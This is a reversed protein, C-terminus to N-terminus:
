HIYTQTHTHTYTHMYTHMYTHRNTQIHTHICTHKYTHKYTHINTHKYTQIYLHIHRSILREFRFQGLEAGQTKINFPSYTHTKYTYIYIYIYTHILLVYMNEVILFNWFFIFFEISFYLTQEVSKLCIKNDNLVYNSYKHSKHYFNTICYTLM